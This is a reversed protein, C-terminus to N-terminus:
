RAQVDTREHGLEKQGFVAIEAADTAGAPALRGAILEAGLLPLVDEALKCPQPDVLDVERAAFREDATVGDFQHTKGPGKADPVGVEVRIRDQERWGLELLHERRANAAEVNRDIPRARQVILDTAALPGEIPRGRMKTGDDRL